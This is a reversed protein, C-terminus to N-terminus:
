QAAAHVILDPKVREIFAMVGARDRIDLEAHTFNKCSAELRQQNWHTDGKEGFFDRRMNNDAGFVQWGRADFYAVVESGILGNSGTVVLKNVEIIGNRTPVVHRNDGCEM